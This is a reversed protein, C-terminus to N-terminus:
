ISESVTTHWQRSFQLLKQLAPSPTVDGPYAVGLTRKYHETFSRVCVDFPINELLLKPLITVGFGQEVMKITAYDENLRYQVKPQIGNMHFLQGTEYDFGDSSLIFQEGNIDTVSVLKQTSLPHNQPTVLMLEDEGIPVFPYDPVSFRSVYICDLEGQKMKHILEDFGDVYLEFRIGPYAESFPKLIDPLWHYSISQISGIRIYGSDLSNLAAALQEIHKEEHCIVTLSEIIGETNSLLEMGAKSRKFLTVGLEKEFNRITQSVASQTYNFQEATKSISKTKCVDLIIEYKNM